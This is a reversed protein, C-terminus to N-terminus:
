DQHKLLHLAFGTLCVAIAFVEVAAIWKGALVLVVSAAFLLSAGIGYVITANPLSKPGPPISGNNKPALMNGTKQVVAPLSPIKELWKGM